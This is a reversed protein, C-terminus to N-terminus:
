SCERHSNSRRGAPNEVPKAFSQRRTMPSGSRVRGCRALSIIALLGIVGLWSVFAGLLTFGCEGTRLIGCAPALLEGVLGAGIVGLTSDVLSVHDVDTHMVLTALWGVLGALILMPIVNM